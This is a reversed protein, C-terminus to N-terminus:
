GQPTSCKTSLKVSSQYPAPCSKCDEMHFQHLLNLVYKPQSVFIGKNSQQIQLGLFYHLLGLDFV